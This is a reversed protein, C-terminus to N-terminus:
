NAKARLLVALSALAVILSTGSIVITYMSPLMVLSLCSLVLGVLSPSLLLWERKTM